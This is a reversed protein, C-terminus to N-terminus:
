TQIWSVISYLKNKQKKTKTQKKLSPRVIYGLSIKFELNEQRLRVPLSIVLM